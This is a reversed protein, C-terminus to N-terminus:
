ASTSEYVMEDEAQNTDFEYVAEGMNHSDKWVLPMYRGATLTVGIALTLKDGVDFLDADDALSYLVSAPSMKRDLTAEINWQSVQTVQGIANVAPLLARIAKAGSKLDKGLAGRIVISVKTALLRKPLTQAIVRPRKGKSLAQRKPAAKPKASKAKRKTPRAPAKLPAKRKPTNGRKKAAM